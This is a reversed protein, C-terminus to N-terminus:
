GYYEHFEDGLEKKLHERARLLRSRCATGSIGLVKGAEVSTLDYVCCYLLVDQWDRRMKSICDRVKKFFERKGIRDAMDETFPTVLVDLRASGEESDVSITEIRKKRHYDVCKRKVITVLVPGQEEEQKETYKGSYSVFTEQLVEGVDDYPIGHRRAITALMGRYEEYMSQFMDDINKEM